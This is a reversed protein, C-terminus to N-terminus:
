RHLSLEAQTDKRIMEDVIARNYIREIPVRQGGSEYYLSNGAKKIDTISVTKIGLLKETLLFDPLTKQQLPDIEMLVVNQPDHDAVIARQLLTRTVRGISVVSCTNSTRTM